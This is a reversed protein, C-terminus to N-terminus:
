LKKSGPNKKAILMGFTQINKELKIAAKVHEEVFCLILLIVNMLSKKMSIKSITLRGSQYLQGKLRKKKLMLYEKSIDQLIKM